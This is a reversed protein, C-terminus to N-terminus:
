DNMWKVLAANSITRSAQAMIIILNNKSYKVIFRELAESLPTARYFLLWLIVGM